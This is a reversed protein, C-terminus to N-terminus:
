GKTTDVPDDVSPIAGGEAGFTLLSSDILSLCSTSSSPPPSLLENSRLEALAMM